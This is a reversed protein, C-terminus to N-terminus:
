LVENGHSHRDPQRVGAAAAADSRTWMPCIFWRASLFLFKVALTRARTVLAGAIFLLFFPSFSCRQCWFAISLTGYSLLWLGLNCSCCRRCFCTFQKNLLSCSVSQCVFSTKNHTHTNRLNSVFVFPFSLTLTFTLQFAFAVSFLSGWLRHCVFCLLM